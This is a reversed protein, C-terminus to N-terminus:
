LPYICSCLLRNVTQSNWSHTYTWLLKQRYKMGSALWVGLPKTVHFIMNDRRFLLPLLPTMSQSELVISKRGAEIGFQRWHLPLLYLRTWNNGYCHNEVSEHNIVSERLFINEPLPESKDNWFYIFTYHIWMGIVKEGIFNCVLIHM